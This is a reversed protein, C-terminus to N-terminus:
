EKTKKLLNIWFVWDGTYRYKQIDPTVIGINKKFICASANPITNRYVLSEAIESIGENRFDEKWRLSDHGDTWYYGQIITESSDGITQTRCYILGVENNSKAM